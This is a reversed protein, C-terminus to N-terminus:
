LGAKYRELQHDAKIAARTFSNNKWWSILSTVTLFGTSVLLEVTEDEIPLPTKGLVVLLQNILALWLLATRVYTSTAVKM